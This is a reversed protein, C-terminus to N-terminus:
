SLGSFRHKPARSVTEHGQIGTKPENSGGRRSPSFACFVPFFPSFIPSIRGLVHLPTPIVQVWGAPGRLAASCVVGLLHLLSSGAAALWLYHLLRPMTTRLLEDAVAITFNNQLSLKATWAWDAARLNVLGQTSLAAMEWGTLGSADLTLLQPVSWAMLWVGAALWCWQWIRSGVNM